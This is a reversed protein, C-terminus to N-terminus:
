SDFTALELDDLRESSALYPKTSREDVTEFSSLKTSFTPSL